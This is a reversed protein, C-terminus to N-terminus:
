PGQAYVGGRSRLPKYKEAKKNSKGKIFHEKKTSRGYFFHTM